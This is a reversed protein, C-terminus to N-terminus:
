AHFEDKRAVNEAAGGSAITSTLEPAGRNSQIMM